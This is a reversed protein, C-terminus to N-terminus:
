QFRRGLNDAAMGAWDHIPIGFAQQAPELGGGRRFLGLFGTPRKASPRFRVVEKEDRGLVLLSGKNSDDGRLRPGM